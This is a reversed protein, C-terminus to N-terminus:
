LESRFHDLTQYYFRQLFPFSLSFPSKGNQLMKWAWLIRGTRGNLDEFPHIKEYECHAQWADMKKWAQFYDNMMEQIEDPAPCRHGGVTVHM